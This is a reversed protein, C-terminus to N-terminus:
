RVARPLNLAGGDIVLTHGTIWSSLDSALFVAANGCDAVVIVDSRLVDPHTAVYEELGGTGQEESGECILKVGTPFGGHVEKLARLAAM